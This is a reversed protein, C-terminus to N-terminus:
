GNIEEGMIALEGVERGHPCIYENKTRRTKM